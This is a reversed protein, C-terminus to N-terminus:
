HSAMEASLASELATIQTNKQQLATVSTFLVATLSFTLVLLLATLEM